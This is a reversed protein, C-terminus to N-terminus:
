ELTIRCLRWQTLLTAGLKETYLRIAPENWDLVTWDVRGYGRERALRLLYELLATGISQRRWGPLVFLDELHLGPKGRFTSFNEFFLAFGVAQGGTEALVVEVKSSADQLIRRFDAPSSTVEHELKEFAALQCVLDFVVSADEPTACRLTVPCASM